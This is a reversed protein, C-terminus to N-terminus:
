IINIELIQSYELIVVTEAAKPRASELSNQTTQGAALGPSGAKDSFGSVCRHCCGASRNKLASLATYM